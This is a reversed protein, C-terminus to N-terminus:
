WGIHDFHLHTFILDTVEYVRVDLAALSDLLRGQEVHTGEFHEGVARIMETDLGRARLVAAIPDDAADADVVPSRYADTVQQGSGADVLAVRDGARILFGGLTSEIVGGPHLMGHQDTWAPTGIEPFPKTRRLKSLIRGDLVPEITIAGVQVPA